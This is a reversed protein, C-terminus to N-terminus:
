NSYVKTLTMKLSAPIDLHMQVQIALSPDSKDYAEAILDGAKTGHADNKNEEFWM